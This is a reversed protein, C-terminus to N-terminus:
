STWQNHVYRETEASSVDICDLDVAIISLCDAIVSTPPKPDQSLSNFAFRLAWRPVKQSSLRRQYESKTLLVLARAAVVHEHITQKHDKWDGQWRYREDPYLTKRIAGLACCLPHGLYIAGPPFVRRYRQRVSTVGSSVSGTASLHALTHILCTASMTGLEKSGLTVVAHNDIVGVCGALVNFCDVVLTPNFGAPPVISALYELTSLRRGKDLSTRLIWSICDFDLSITHQDSERASASSVRPLLAYARRPSAVLSQTVTRGLLRADDAFTNPFDKLVDRLFPTIKSRSWWPKHCEANLQVMKVTKSDELARRFASSTASAASAVSRLIRSAPTQYPCNASTTGAVVISLYFAVGFSTTGIAVSAVTTNIEWLYRSLACGLLLLAAQLM